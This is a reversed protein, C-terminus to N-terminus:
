SPITGKLFSKTESIEILINTNTDSGTWPYQQMTLFKLANAIVKTEEQPRLHILLHHIAWDNNSM